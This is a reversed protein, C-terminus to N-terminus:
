AALVPARDVPCEFPELSRECLVIASKGIERAVYQQCRQVAVREVRSENTLSL